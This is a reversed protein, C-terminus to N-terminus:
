RWPRPRGSTGSRRAVARRVKPHATERANKLAEFGERARIKGLASACEVRVGWFEREDALARGLAALTLPDDQKAMAQAALWRGRATPAKALQERLM